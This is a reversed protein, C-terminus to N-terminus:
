NGYSRLPTGNALLGVVATLVRHAERGTVTGASCEVAIIMGIEALLQERTM